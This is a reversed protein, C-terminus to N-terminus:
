SLFGYALTPTLDFIKNLKLIKFDIYKLIRLMKSKKVVAIGGNPATWTVIQTNTKNRIHIRSLTGLLIGNHTWFNVLSALTQTTCHVFICILIPHPAVCHQYVNENNSIKMIKKQTIKLSAM